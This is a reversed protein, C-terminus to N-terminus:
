FPSEKPALEEMLHIQASGCIIGYHKGASVLTVIGLNRINGPPHDQQTV